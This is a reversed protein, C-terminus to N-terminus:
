LEIKANNVEWERVNYCYEHTLCNLFVANYKGKLVKQYYINKFEKYNVFDPFLSLFEEYFSELLKNNTIKFLFLYDLNARIAPQLVKKLSHIIIIIQINLHRSEMVCKIFVPDTSIDNGSATADDIVFLTAEKPNKKESLVKNVVLPSYKTYIITKEKSKRIFEYQEQDHDNKFSPLVLHYTKFKKVKMWFKILHLVTYTKSTGKAGVFCIIRSQDDKLFELEGDVCNNM